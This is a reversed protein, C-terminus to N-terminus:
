RDYLARHTSSKQLVDELSFIPEEPHFHMRFLSFIGQKPSIKELLICSLHFRNLM